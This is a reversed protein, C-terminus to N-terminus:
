QRAYPVDNIKCSQCSYGEGPWAIKLISTYGSSSITVISINLELRDSPAWIGYEIVPKPNITASFNYFAGLNLTSEYKEIKYQYTLDDNFEWTTTKNNIYGGSSYQDIHVWRGSLKAANMNVWDGSGNSNKTLVTSSYIKAQEPSFELQRQLEERFLIKGPEGEANEYISELFDHLASIDVFHKM